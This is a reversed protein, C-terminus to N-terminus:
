FFLDNRYKINKYEMRNVEVNILLGKGISVNFDVIKGKEKINGKILEKDLFLLCNENDDIKIDM